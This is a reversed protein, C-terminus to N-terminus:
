TEEQNRERTGGLGPMCVNILEVSIERADCRVTLALDSPELQQLPLAVAPHRIPGIM